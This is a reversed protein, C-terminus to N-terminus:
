KGLLTYGNNNSSADGFLGMGIPSYDSTFAQAGQVIGDLAQNLGYIAGRLPAPVVQAFNYFEQEAQARTEERRLRMSQLEIQRRRVDEQLAQIRSEIQAIDAEAATKQTQEVALDELQSVYSSQREALLAQAGQLLEQSRQLRITGQNILFTQHSLENQWRTFHDYVFATAQEPDDLNVIGGIRGLSDSAQVFNGSTSRLRASYDQLMGASAYGDSDAFYGSNLLEDYYSREDDTWTSKDISALRESINVRGPSTLDVGSMLTDTFQRKLADRQATRAVDAQSGALREQEALARRQQAQLAIDSVVKGVGAIAGFVSSVSGLIQLPLMAVSLGRQFKNQREQVDASLAADPSLGSLPTGEAPTTDAAVGNGALQGSLADNFGAQRDRAVQSVTSNYQNEFQDGLLAQFEEQFHNQRDRTSSEDLGGQFQYGQLLSLAQNYYPTGALRQVKNYQQDYWSLWAVLEPTAAENDVEAPGFLPRSLYERTLWGSSAFYDWMERTLWAYQQSYVEFSSRRRSM